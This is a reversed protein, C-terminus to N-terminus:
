AGATKASLLKDLCVALRDIGTIIREPDSNSFNLRLCADGGDIFFPKGPVFAVKEAIALDFLDMASYGEPLEAWLFMGGEPQTCTVETPFKERIRAAMVDRREKYIARIKAIHEDIDYEKLYRVLIAQLLTSTHLDSAQKATVMKHASDPDAWLWGVRLGPSSIKSFTGLMVKRGTMFSAVPPLSEGMFRLEGYPDDEIFCVGADSLIKAAGKRKELTYSIGSPNQFNPVAYFFRAKGDAVAESLAGLDPGDQGLPIIRFDAEFLSFAQIAGLYGPKELVVPDGPDIFVKSLLDLGQQSGTTIVICDPDVDLAKKTRYRDAVWTRLEKDGETTSYQLANRGSEGIVAAAVKALEECPFSDPSPLGGAFSIISPDQTVKLIERIFSRRVSDMRRSYGTKPTM